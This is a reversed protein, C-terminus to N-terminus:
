GKRLNHTIEGLARIGSISADDHKDVYRNEGVTEISEIGQRRNRIDYNEHRWHMMGGIEDYDAAVPYPCSAGAAAGILRFPQNGVKLTTLRTYEALM